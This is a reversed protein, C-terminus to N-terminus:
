SGNPAGAGDESPPPLAEFAQRWEDTLDEDLISEDGEERRVLTRGVPALHLAGRLYALQVFDDAAEVDGTLLADLARRELQEPDVLRPDVHIRRESGFEARSEGGGRVAAGAESSGACDFSTGTM